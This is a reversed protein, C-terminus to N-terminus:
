KALLLNEKLEDREVLSSSASEDPMAFTRPVIGVLSVTFDDNRVMKSVVMTLLITLIHASYFRFASLMLNWSVSVISSFAMACFPM